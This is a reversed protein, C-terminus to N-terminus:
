CCGGKRSNGCCGNWEVHYGAWEQVHYYGDDGVGATTHRYPLNHSWECCGRRFACCLIGENITKTGGGKTLQKGKRGKTLGTGRITEHNRDINVVDGTKKNVLRYNTVDGDNDTDVVSGVGTKGEKLLERNAEQILERKIKSLRGM